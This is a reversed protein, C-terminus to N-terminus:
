GLYFGITAQNVVGRFLYDLSAIYGALSKLRTKRSGLKVELDFALLGSNNFSQNVPPTGNNFSFTINM